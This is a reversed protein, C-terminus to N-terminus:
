SGALGKRYEPHKEVFGKVFPCTPTFLFGRRLTEDLAHRVLEDAVHRGRLEPPVFTHQFDYTHDGVPRYTVEAEQGDIVASFKHEKEDHQVEFAMTSRRTSELALMSQVLARYDEPTDVDQVVGPDDVEIWLTAAAHRDRLQRLGNSAASDLDCIEPILEPAMVLPHGHRGQWVPLALPARAAARRRIVEAITEPRVAPLDAPSVVLTEGRGALMPAGGLAAIGEQITSLMGREPDPNVAVLLGAACAWDQLAADGPATVLAITEVGAAQLSAVLAGAITGELYPLLLKPRGMRRSAGAAPLLAVPM